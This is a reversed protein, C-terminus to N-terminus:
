GNIVQRLQMKNLNGDEGVGYLFCSNADLFLGIIQCNTVQQSLVEPAASDTPAPLPHIYQKVRGKDTGVFLFGLDESLM